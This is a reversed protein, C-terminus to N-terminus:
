DWLAQYYKGFLKFGNQKREAWKKHGESDYVHTDNPGDVMKYLVGADDKETIKEGITYTKGDELPNGHLDVKMWRIDRDGTHFQDDANDDIQQKFAWIMEDLIWDWRKHHNDDTDYDNEKAPASTSRLEEPVDEDDTWPSGHKTERLQELMPLIIYALTHDMSWTDYRDIRVKIKREKKSEVWNCLGVLWKWESLRDGLKHIRDDDKENDYKDLWFLLKEAIQYPGVWNTYPGIYVKM